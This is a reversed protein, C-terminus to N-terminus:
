FIELIINRSIIKSVMLGQKFAYTLKYSYRGIYKIYTSLSLNETLERNLGGVGFNVGEM